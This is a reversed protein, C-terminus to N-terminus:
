KKKLSTEGLLNIMSEKLNVSQTSLLNAHKKTTQQNKEFDIKQFM